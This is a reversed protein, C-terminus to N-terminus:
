HQPHPFEFPPPPRRVHVASPYDYATVMTIPEHKLYKQRLTRLTTRKASPSKPGSYVVDPPKMSAHYRTQQHSSGCGLASTANGLKRFVSSPLCQATANSSSCWQPHQHCEREGGDRWEGGGCPSTYGRYARFRPGTVAGSGTLAESHCPPATISNHRLSDHSRCRWPDRQWACRSSIHKIGSSSASTQSFSRPAGETASSGADTKTRGAQEITQACAGAFPM